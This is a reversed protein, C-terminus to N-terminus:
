IHCDRLVDDVPVAVGPILLDLDIKGARQRKRLAVHNVSTPLDPLNVRDRQVVVHRATVPQRDQPDIQCLHSYISRRNMLITPQSENRNEERVAERVCADVRDASEIEVPSREAEDGPRKESRRKRDTWAKKKGSRRSARVPADRRSSNCFRRQGSVNTSTSCLRFVIILLIRSASPSEASVARKTSVRGRRPYRKMPLISDSSGSGGGMSGSGRFGNQIRFDARMASACDNSMGLFRIALAVRKRRRVSDPEKKFHCSALLEPSGPVIREIATSGRALRESSGLWCYRTSPM